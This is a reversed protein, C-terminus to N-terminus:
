LLEASGHLSHNQTPKYPISQETTKVTRKGGVIMFPGFVSLIKRSPESISMVHTAVADSSM